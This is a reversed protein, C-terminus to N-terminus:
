SKNLLSRESVQFLSDQLHRIFRSQEFLQNSLRTVYQPAEERMLRSHLGALRDRLVRLFDNQNVSDDLIFPEKFWYVDEGNKKNCIRFTHDAAYPRNYGKDRRGLVVCYEGYPVVYIQAEEYNMVRATTFSLLNKSLAEELLSIVKDVFQGHAADIRSKEEISACNGAIGDDACM